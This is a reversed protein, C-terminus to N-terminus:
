NLSRIHRRALSVPLRRMNPSRVCAFLLEFRAPPRLWRDSFRLHWWHRNKSPLTRGADSFRATSRSEVSECGSNTANNRNPTRVENPIAPMRCDKCSLRLPQLLQELPESRMAVSPAAPLAPSLTTGLALVLDTGDKAVIPRPAPNRGARRVRCLGVEATRRNLSSLSLHLGGNSLQASRSQWTLGITPAGQQVWRDQQRSMCTVHKAAVSCQHM